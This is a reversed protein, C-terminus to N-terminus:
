PRKILSAALNLFGAVSSIVIALLLVPALGSRWRSLFWRWAVLGVGIGAGSALLLSVIFVLM